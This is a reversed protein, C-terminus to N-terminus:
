LNLFIRVFQGPRDCTRIVLGASQIEDHEQPSSTQKIWNKDEILLKNKILYNAM